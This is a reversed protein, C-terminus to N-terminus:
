PVGANTLHKLVNPMRTGNSKGRMKKKGKKWSLRREVQEAVLSADHDLREDGNAGSCNGEDDVEEEKEEKKEEMVVVVEVAEAAAAAVVVVVM